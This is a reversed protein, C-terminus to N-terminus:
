IFRAAGWIGAALAVGALPIPHIHKTMLFFTVSPIVLLAMLVDLPELHLFFCAAPFLLLGLLGAMLGKTASHQGPLWSTLLPGMVSGSFWAILLTNAIPPGGAQLHEWSFTASRFGSLLVMSVIVPIMFKGSAVVNRLVM